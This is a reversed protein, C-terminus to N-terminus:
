KHPQWSTKHTCPQKSPAKRWDYPAGRVDDDRTYGWEVMAQVISFFYMGLLCVFVCLCLPLFYLTLLSLRIGTQGDTHPCKTKFEGVSRKSPDLYELSYTQGFGPVRIDVGPPAETAHTTRNYILRCVFVCLIDCPSDTRCRHHVVCARACVCYCSASGM